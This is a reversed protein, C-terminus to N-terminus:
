NEGQADSAHATALLAQSAYELSQYVADLVKTRTKPSHIARADSQILALLAYVDRLRSQTVALPNM